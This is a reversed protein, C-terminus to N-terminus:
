DYGGFRCFQQYFTTFCEYFMLFQCLAPTTFHVILYSVRMGEFSILKETVESTYGTGLPVREKSLHNVWQSVLVVHM